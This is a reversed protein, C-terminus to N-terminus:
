ILKELFPTRFYNDLENLHTQQAQIFHDPRLDGRLKTKSDNLVYIYHSVTSMDNPRHKLLNPVHKEIIATLKYLYNHRVKSLELRNTLSYFTQIAKEYDQSHYYFNGLFEELEVIAANNGALRYFHSAFMVKKIVEDKLHTSFTPQAHVPEKQDDKKPKLFLCIKLVADYVFISAMRSYTQNYANIQNETWTVFRYKLNFQLQSYKVYAILQQRAKSFQGNISYLSSLFKANFVCRYFKLDKDDQKIAQLYGNELELYEAEEIKLFENNVVKVYCSPKEIDKSKDAPKFIENMAEDHFSTHYAVTNAISSM